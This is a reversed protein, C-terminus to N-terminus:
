RGEEALENALARLSYEVACALAVVRAISAADGNSVGDRHADVEALDARVSALWDPHVHPVLPTVREEFVLSACRRGDIAYLDSLLMRVVAPSAPRDGVNRATRAIRKGVDHVLDAVHPGLGARLGATSEAFARTM